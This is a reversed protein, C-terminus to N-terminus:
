KFVDLFYENNVEYLANLLDLKFKCKIDGHFVQYIIKKMTETKIKYHKIDTMGENKAKDMKNYKEKLITEETVKNYKSEINKVKANMENIIKVIGIIQSDKVKRDDIKGSLLDELLYTKDDPIKRDLDKLVDQLFDMSCDFHEIKDKIKTDQTKVYQFFLPKKKPLIDNNALYTIQEKMDIDYTKKAQDIAVESLITGINIGEILKNLLKEDTCGNNVQKWYESLYLAATNVTEGINRTSSALKTDINIMDEVCVKRPTKERLIGNECVKYKGFCERAKSLTIDSNFILISDSDTDNGSFIRNIAWGIASFYVINDTFHFYEQIFPVKINKLIAVNAQQTHPNRTAVYEKGFPHLTTFCENDKLILEDKWAEEDLILEGDVMNIPLKGLAHYLLEKGNQIITCYDSPVRIKGKRAHDVYNQIDNNHKDRFMKTHITKENYQLLDALMNNCNMDNNEKRLFEIYTNKDNKLKNIYKVEFDCLKQMDPLKYNMSNLIQYSTQNLIQGDDNYGRHSKHESKVIYFQNHAKHVQKKWYNWMTKRGDKAKKNKEDGNFIKSFKLSKISSPTTIIEVDKAFIKSGFMDVLEWTDYEIDKPCMKGLFKQLKCHFVCCKFMHERLLMMGYESRNANKFVVEDAVGEGDFLSNKMMYEPDNVSELIGTDENKRVINCDVQFVSNVDDVLMIHNPNILTVDESASGILSEYTLLSPFDLDTRDAVKLGMDMYNKIDKYLKKNVFLVQGVRSKASSRGLVVYDIYTEINKDNYKLTFGNKYANARLTDASITYESKIDKMIEIIHKIKIDEMTIELKIKNLSCELKDTNAKGKRTNIKGKISCKIKNLKVKSEKRNRVILSLIRYQENNFLDRTNDISWNFKLNIIDRSMVKNPHTKSTFTKLGLEKEQDLQQSYALMGCYDNDLFGGKNIHEWVKASEYSNIYVSKNM